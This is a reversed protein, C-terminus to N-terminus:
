MVPFNLSPEANLSLDSFIGDQFNLYAAAGIMAANDGSLEIPAETLDLGYEKALKEMSRRLAINAAVGGGLLLQKPSFEEIALKTKDYIAKVVAKQFSAALDNRDYEQDVQQHHHVYNLVASKLGSFSFDFDNDTHAIPLDINEKGKAAMDQIDKGAPYQLGMIRGVKDFAEGAADDLTTGIIEFSNKKKMWVLETHGGSVMVALAPYVTAKVFNAASIHGALHNVGIFPLDYVAAFTKGAMLGVLLSGVLGPGYTAAVADLQAKPDTIGAQKLAQDAVRNIWELHHRSAVEPVIGGFRQHSAIQTAVVNSLIKNGNKVVAASTEDASSEFALIYIDKKSNDNM